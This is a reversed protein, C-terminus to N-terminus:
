GGGEKGGSKPPFDWNSVQSQLNSVVYGNAETEGETDQSLTGVEKM